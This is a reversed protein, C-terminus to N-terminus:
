PTAAQPTLARCAILAPVLLLRIADALM